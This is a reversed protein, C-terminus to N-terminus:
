RVKRRLTKTQLLQQRWLSGVSKNLYARLELFSRFRANLLPRYLYSSFAGLPAIANGPMVVSVLLLADGLIMANWSAQQESNRRKGLLM